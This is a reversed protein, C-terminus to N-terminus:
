KTKLKRFELFEIYEDKPMSVIINEKTENGFHKKLDRLVKAIDMFIRKPYYGCTNISELIKIQQELTKM